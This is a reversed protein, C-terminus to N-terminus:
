SRCSHPVTMPQQVGCASLQACECSCLAYTFCCQRFLDAQACSVQAYSQNYQQTSLGQPINFCNGCVKNWHLAIGVKVNAGLKGRQLAGRYKSVLKMYENPYKWVSKGMEGAIMFWVQPYYLPACAPLHLLLQDFQANHASCCIHRLAKSAAPLKNHLLAPALQAAADPLIHRLRDCCQVSLVSCSLAGASLM